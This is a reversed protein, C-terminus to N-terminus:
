PVLSSTGRCTTNFVFRETPFIMSRIEEVSKHEDIIVPIEVEHTLVRFLGHQKALTIFYREFKPFQVKTGHFFPVDTVQETLHRSAMNEGIRQASAAGNDGSM